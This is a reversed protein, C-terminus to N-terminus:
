RCPRAPTPKPKEAFGAIAFRLSCHAIQRKKNQNKAKTKQSPFKLNKRFHTAVVLKQNFATLLM